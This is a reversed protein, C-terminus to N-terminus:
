ALVPKGLLARLTFIKGIHYGRHINMFALASGVTNYENGGDVPQDLDGEALRLLGQHAREFAARVEYLPPLPGDGTSGQRFLEKYTEPVLLAGGVVEQVLLADYYAMHGVQWVIPTLGHPRAAAEETSLDALAQEVSEATFTLQNKLAERM